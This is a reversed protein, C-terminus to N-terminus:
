WSRRVNRPVVRAAPFGAPALEPTWVDSKCPVSVSLPKYVHPRYVHARYAPYAKGDVVTAGPPRAPAVGPAAFGAWVGLPAKLSSVDETAKPAIAPNLVRIAALQNPTKPPPPDVVPQVAALSKVFAVIYDM